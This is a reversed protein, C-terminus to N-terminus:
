EELIPNINEFKVISVTCSDKIGELYGACLQPEEDGPVKIQHTKVGKRLLRAGYIGCRSINLLKVPVYRLSPEIIRSESKGWGAITAMGSYRDGRRPVCIPGVAVKRGNVDGAEENYM